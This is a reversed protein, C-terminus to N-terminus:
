FVGCPPSFSTPHQYYNINIIWANTIQYVCIAMILNFKTCNSSTVVYILIYQWLASLYPNFVYLFKFVSINSHDAELISTKLLYWHTRIDLNCNGLYKMKWSAKIGELMWIVIPSKSSTPKAIIVNSRPVAKILFILSFWNCSM